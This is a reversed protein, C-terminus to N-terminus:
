LFRIGEIRMEHMYKGEKLMSSGVPMRTPIKIGGFDKLEQLLVYGSIFSGAERVTYEIKQILHTEQDVWVLYQDFEKQPEIKGWSVFVQDCVKGEITDTGIYRFVDAELIRAPFEIFYQYTPIWFLADDERKAIKEGEWNIAYGQGNEVGWAQYKIQKDRFKMLGEFKRPKLTLAVPVPNVKHPNAIKGVTGFFEDELTVEYKGIEDWQDAGHAQMAAKLITQGKKGSDEYAQPSSLDVTKCSILMFIGVGFVGLYKM